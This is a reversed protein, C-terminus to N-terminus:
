PGAARGVDDVMGDIAMDASVGPWRRRPHDETWEDRRPEDGLLGHVTAVAYTSCALNSAVPRGAREWSRHFQDGITVVAAFRGAMADVKLRRADALHFDERYCPLEVLTNAAEAADDLHGAAVAAESRMVHTDCIEFASDATLPLDDILAHRRQLDALASDIDGSALHVGTALDLAASLLLPDGAREALQVALQPDAASGPGVQDALFGQATLIAARAADSGDSLQRAQDLLARADARTPVHAMIGAARGILTAMQALDRCAGGRDGDALALEASRRLLELADNGVFRATAAGAALRLLRRRDSPQALEAAREFRRQAESLRGRAFLLEALGEEM